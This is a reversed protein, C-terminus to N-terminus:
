YPVDDYLGDNYVLFDWALSRRRERGFVVMFDGKTGAQDIARAYDQLLMWKKFDGGNPYTVLVRLPVELIALKKVEEMSTKCDNEHEIAVVARDDGVFVADIREHETLYSLHFLDAVQKLVGQDSLMLDTLRSLNDNRFAATMEDALLSYTYMFAYKFQTPRIM